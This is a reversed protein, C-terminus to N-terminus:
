YNKEFIKENAFPFLQFFASEFLKYSNWYAIISIFKLHWLTWLYMSWVLQDRILNHQTPIQGSAERTFQKLCFYIIKLHQPQLIM